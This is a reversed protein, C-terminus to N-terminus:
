VPPARAGHSQVFPRDRNVRDSRPAATPHTVAGILLYNADASPTDLSQLARCILCNYHAHGTGRSPNNPDEVRTTSQAEFAQIELRADVVPGVGLLLLQCLLTLFAFQRRHRMSSRVRTRSHPFARGSSGRATLNRGPRRRTLPEPSVTDDPEDGM